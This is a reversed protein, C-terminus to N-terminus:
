KPVGQFLHPNKLLSFVISGIATLSIVIQTAALLISVVISPLGEQEGLERRQRLARIAFYISLPGTMLGFCYFLCGGIGLSLAIGRFNRLQSRASPLAGEAALRDFCDPCLEQGDIDVRCLACMFVGCRQCAAVAANGAHRACPVAGAPGAALSAAAQRVLEPPAFPQAVFPRRCSPCIQEGVALAAPDLPAACHPCTPGGYSRSM